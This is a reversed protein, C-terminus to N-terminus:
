ICPIYRWINGGEFSRERLLSFWSEYIKLIDMRFCSPNGHRCSFYIRYLHTDLATRWFLHDKLKPLDNKMRQIAILLGNLFYFEDELGAYKFILIGRAVLSIKEGLDM